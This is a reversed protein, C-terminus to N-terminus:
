AYKIEKEVGDFKIVLNMFLSEAIRTVNKLKCPGKGQLIKRVLYYSVKTFRNLVDHRRAELRAM